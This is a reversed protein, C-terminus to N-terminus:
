GCIILCKVRRVQSSWHTQREQKRNPCHVYDYLIYTWHFGHIFHIIFFCVIVKWTFCLYGLFLYCFFCVTYVMLEGLGVFMYYRKYSFFSYFKNSQMWFSSTANTNSCLKYFKHINTSAKTPQNALNMWM